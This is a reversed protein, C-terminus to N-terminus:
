DECDNERMDRAWLACTRNASSTEYASNSGDTTTVAGHYLSAFGGCTSRGAPDSVVNCANTTTIEFADDCDHRAGGAAWCGDHADCAARFSVGPYPAHIDGSYADSAFVNLIANQFWGGIGGTGCGNPQWGAQGPVDIGPSPPPQSLSCSQPQGAALGQCFLEGDLPLDESPFQDYMLLWEQLARASEAQASDFCSGSTCTIAGGDERTGVVVVKPIDTIDDALVYLGALMLPILLAFALKRNQDM